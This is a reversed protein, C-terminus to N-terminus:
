HLFSGNKFSSIYSYAKEKADTTIDLRVVGRDPQGYFITNGLPSLLVVPLVLLDEEGTVQIVSNAIAQDFIRKITLFAHHTIYGAPNTIHFAITDKPFHLDALSDYKKERKVHFDVISFMHSIHHSNFTYTVADGITIANTFSFSDQKELWTNFDSLLTGFPKELQPRLSEPLALDTTYWKEEIYRKGDRGIEGSRIRRSSLITNDQTYIFPALVIPLMALGTERRKRNIVGAGAETESTAVIAEINVKDWCSPIYINDIPAISVRSMAHESLLFEELHKKREGFPQLAAHQKTKRAFTDSTLGILVHESLHLAFRLFAQHGEHFHDFTGGLVVTNYKRM